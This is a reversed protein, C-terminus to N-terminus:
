DILAIGRIQPLLCELVLPSDGFVGSVEIVTLCDPTNNPKETRAMERFCHRHEVVLPVHCALLHLPLQGNINCQQPIGTVFRDKAGKDVYNRGGLASGM